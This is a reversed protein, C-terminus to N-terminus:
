LVLGEQNWNYIGESVDRGMWGGPQGVIELRDGDGNRGGVGGWMRGSMGTRRWRGGGSFLYRSFQFCVCLVSRRAEGSGVGRWLYM